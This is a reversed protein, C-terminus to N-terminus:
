AGALALLGYTSMGSGALGMLGSFLNGNAANQANTTNLQAGYQQEAAGLLDPTQAVGAGTFPISTNGGSIMNYPNQGGMISNFLNAQTVAESNATNLNTNAANIDMGQMTQAEQEGALVAQDQASQTQQFQTNSLNKMATDYAADGPRLGQGELQSQEQETQQQQLPEEMNQFQGWVAQEAQPDLTQSSQINRNVNDYNVPNYVSGGATNFLNQAGGLQEQQLISQEGLTGEQTNLSSQLEPTLYSEGTWQGGPGQQWSTGGFPTSTTPRNATTQQNLLNSSIQGQQQALQEYPPAEPTNSKSGM